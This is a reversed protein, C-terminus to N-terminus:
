KNLLSEEICIVRHAMMNIKNEFAHIKMLGKIYDNIYKIQIEGMILGAIIGKKGRYYNYKSLVLELSNQATYSLENYKRVSAHKQIYKKAHPDQWTTTM